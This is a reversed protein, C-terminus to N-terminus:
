TATTITLGAPSTRLHIKPHARLRSLTMDLPDRRAHTRGTDLHAAIQRRTIPGHEAILRAVTRLAPSLFGFAAECQQRYSQETTTYPVGIRVVGPVGSFALSGDSIAVSCAGRKPLDRLGHRAHQALVCWRVNDGLGALNVASTNLLM